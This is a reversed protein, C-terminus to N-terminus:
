ALAAIDKLTGDIACLTRRQAERNPLAMAELERRLRRLDEAYDQRQPATLRDRLYVPPAPGDKPQWLLPELSLSGDGVKFKSRSFYAEEGRAFWEALDGAAQGRVGYVASVAQRLSEEPTTGPSSLVKAGTRWSVEEVPNAFPRFFYECARGGDRWLEALARASGLGTPV